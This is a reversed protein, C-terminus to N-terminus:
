HLYTNHSSDFYQGHEGVTDKDLTTSGSPFPDVEAVAPPRFCVPGVSLSHEEVEGIAKGGLRVCKKFEEEGAELVM